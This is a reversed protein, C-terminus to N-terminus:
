FPQFKSWFRHFKMLPNPAANSLDFLTQSLAKCFFFFRFKDAKTLLYSFIQFSINKTTGRTTFDTLLFCLFRRTNEHVLRKIKRFIM